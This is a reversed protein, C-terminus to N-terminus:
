TPASRAAITRSAPVIAILRQTSPDDVFALPTSGIKVIDSNVADIDETLGDAMRERSKSIGCIRYESIPPCASTIWFNRSATSHGSNCGSANLRRPTRAGFPKNSYPGGPQLLVTNALAHAHSLPTLKRATLPGSTLNRISQVMLWIM